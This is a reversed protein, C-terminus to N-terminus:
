WSFKKETTSFRQFKQELMKIFRRHNEFDVMNKLQKWKGLGELMIGEM